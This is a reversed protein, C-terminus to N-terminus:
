SASRRRSGILFAFIGTVVTQIGQFFAHLTSQSRTPVAENTPNAQNTASSRILGLQNEEQEAQVKAKEFTLTKLTQSLRHNKQKQFHNRYFEQQKPSLHCFIMIADISERNRNNTEHNQLAQIFRNVDICFLRKHTTGLTQIFWSPFPLDEEPNELLQVFENPIVKENQNYSVYISSFHRLIGRGKVNIGRQPHFSPEREPTELEQIACIEEEQNKEQVIQTSPSTSTVPTELPPNEMARARSFFYPFVVTLSAVVLSNSVFSSLLSLWKQSLIPEGVDKKKMFYISFLFYYFFLFYSLFRKTAFGLLFSKKKGFFTEYSEFDTNAFFSENQFSRKKQFPSANPGDFRISVCRKEQFLHIALLFTRLFFIENKDERTSFM